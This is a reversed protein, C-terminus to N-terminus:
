EELYEILLLRHEEKLAFYEDSLENYKDLLAYFDNDAVELHEKLRLIFEDKNM